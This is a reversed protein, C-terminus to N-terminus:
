KNVCYESNAFMMDSGEIVADYSYGGFSVYYDAYGGWYYGDYVWYEGTINKVVDNGTSIDNDKYTASVNVVEYVDVDNHVVNINEVVCNEVTTYDKGNGRMINGALGGLNYTGYLTNDKSVCDKFTVKVGPDAGMGLLMGVKGYGGIQSNVVSVKEFLTTGYTYGMVVGGVNGWYPTGNYGSLVDAGDFTINKITIAGSCNGIFGFGYNTSGAYSRVKMNKISHGNGDITLNDALRFLNLSKWIKGDFDIDANLKITSNGFNQKAQVLENWYNLGNLNSVYYETAGNSAFGDSLLKISQTNGVEPKSVNLIWSANTATNKLLYSGETIVWLYSKGNQKSLTTTDGTVPTFDTGDLNTVIYNAAVDSGIDVMVATRYDCYAGGELVIDNGNDILWDAHTLSVHFKGSNNKIQTRVGPKDTTTNGKGGLSTQRYDWIILTSDDDFTNGVITLGFGEDAGTGGWYGNVPQQVGKFVNNEIVIGKASYNDMMTYFGIEFGEFVNNRVTCDLTNWLLAYSGKGVVKCNQITVNKATLGSNNDIDVDVAGRKFWQFTQPTTSDIYLSDLTTGDAYAQINKAATNKIVTSAARKDGVIGKVTVNKRTITFPAYTGERLIELTVPEEGALDNVAAVAEELTDYKDAGIQAVADDKDANGQVAEVYFVLECTKDQYENGKTEDLLIEVSITKETGDFNTWKGYVTSGDYPEGDVTITLGDLLGNDNETYWKTRYKVNVNSSNTLVIDFKVGDGPVFRDLVVSNGSVTVKQAFTGGLGSAYAANLQKTQLTSNDVAAVVKVKGSTVAINVQSESTFIAFTAGVAISACLIIALVSSLIIKNKM